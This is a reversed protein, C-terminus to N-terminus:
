VCWPPMPALKEGRLLKSSASFVAVDWLGGALLMVTVGRLALRRSAGDPVVQLLHEGAQMAVSTGRGLSRVVDNLRTRWTHRFHQDVIQRIPVPM